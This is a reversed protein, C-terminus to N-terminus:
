STCLFGEVIENVLEVPVIRFGSDNLWQVLAAAVREPEAVEIPSADSDFLSVLADKPTLESM